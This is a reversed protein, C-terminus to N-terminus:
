EIACIMGRKYQLKTKGDWKLDEIIAWNSERAVFFGDKLFIRGIQINPSDRNIAAALSGVPVKKCYKKWFGAIWKTVVKRAYNDDHGYWNLEATGIVAKYHYLDKYHDVKVIQKM